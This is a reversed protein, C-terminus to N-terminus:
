RVYERLENIIEITDYKGKQSKAFKEDCFEIYENTKNFLWKQNTTFNYLWPPTYPMQFIGLRNLIDDCERAGLLDNRFFLMCLKLNIDESSRIEYGGSYTIGYKNGKSKEIKILAPIKVLDLENKILTEASRNFALPAFLTYKSQIKEKLFVFGYSRKNEKAIFGLELFSLETFSIYGHKNTVLKGENIINIASDRSTFHVLFVKRVARGAFSNIKGTVVQTFEHLMGKYDNVITLTKIVKNITRKDKIGIRM